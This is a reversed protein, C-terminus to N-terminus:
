DASEGGLEMDLVRKAEFFTDSFGRVVITDDPAILVFSPWGEIAYSELIRGNEPRDTELEVEPWGHALMGALVPRLDAVGASPTKVGTPLGEYVKRITAISETLGVVRLGKEKYTEYLDRVQADIYISGPCLGWHYFLLYNGAFDAKAISEGETTVLTFDPAPNGRALRELKAKYDAYVGGYYSAKLEESLSEYFEHADDASTYSLKPIRDVLLYLTGQPNTTEYAKRLARKRGIGPNDDYFRNFKESWERNAVTDARALAEQSNQLYRGRIRGLSDEVTLLEALAPEDYIGGGLASYYIEGTTGTLTIRDGPTVILLKGARDGTAAKGVRPLYTMMYYQDHEQRGRYRFRDPERVVIDFAPEYTWDPLLIREFRLTDGVRLGDIRGSLEFPQMHSCSIGAAVLAGVILGTKFKAIM